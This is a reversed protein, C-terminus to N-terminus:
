IDQLDAMEGKGALVPHIAQVIPATPRAMAANEDVSALSGGNCIVDAGIIAVALAIAVPLASKAPKQALEM